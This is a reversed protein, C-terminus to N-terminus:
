NRNALDTTVRALGAVVRALHPYNVKDPTDSATHYYPYRFLATDTVMLAPYGQKWFAWHDSWHIGTLWGPAAIGESPFPTHQRFSGLSQLLLTHSSLNSIFAIYNGTDPYFLSYLPMPYHQSGKADDYYGITELSLMAVINDGQEFARRAYILSGMQETYFFPPEENVFAVFRLTRAPNTGALQRAIELLAAVGSANDNAGPSGQVSDYHAGIIIIEDPRQSGTIEAELNRVIKGEANFTQSDVSYGLQQLTEEIYSAAAELASHHWINREGITDALVTVHQVLRNGLLTQETSLPPLAGTHSDGPMNNIHFSGYVLLLILLLYLWLRISLNRRM